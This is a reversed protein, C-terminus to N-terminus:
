PSISGWIRLVARLSAGSMPQARAPLRPRRIFAAYRQWEERASNAEGLSTTESTM